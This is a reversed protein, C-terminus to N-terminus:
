YSKEDIILSIVFLFACYKQLKILSANMKLWSPMSLTFDFSLSTWLIIALGWRTPGEGLIGM